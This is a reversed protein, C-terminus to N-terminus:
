SEMRQDCEVHRHSRIKEYELEKVKTETIDAQVSVFNVLSGQENFIPNIALSVWYPHGSKTYNLIEGAFAKRGRLAAGIAQVTKADTGAGQM